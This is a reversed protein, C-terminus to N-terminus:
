SVRSSAILAAVLLSVIVRVPLTVKSLGNFMFLVTLISKFLLLIVASSFTNQDPFSFSFVSGVNKTVAAPFAVKEPLTLIKPVPNIPFM